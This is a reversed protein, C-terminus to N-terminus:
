GWLKLTEVCCFNIEQELSMEPCTNLHDLCSDEVHDKLSGLQHCSGLTAQTDAGLGAQSPHLPM